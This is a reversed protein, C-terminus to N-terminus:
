PELGLARRGAGREDTWSRRRYPRTRELEEAREQDAREIGRRVVERFRARIEPRITAASM